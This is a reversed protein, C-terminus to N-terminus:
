EGVPSEKQRSILAWGVVLYFFIVWWDLYGGKPWFSFIGIIFGLALFLLVLSNRGWKTLAFGIMIVIATLVLWMVATWPIGPVFNGWDKPPRIWGGPEGPLPPTLTSDEIDGEEDIYSPQATIFGIWEGYDVVSENGAMARVYYISDAELDTVDYDYVGTTFSGTENWFWTGVETFGWQFGRITAYDGAVQTIEANFTADFDGVPDPPLTNVAWGGTGGPVFQVWSGYADMFENGAYAIVFYSDGQTLNGIAHSYVGTGWADDEHWELAEGTITPTTNWYFGRYDAAGFGLAVIEGQLTATTDGVPDPELTDVDFDEALQKFRLVSGDATWFLGLQDYSQAEPASLNDALAATLGVADAVWEGDVAWTETVANYMSILITDNGPPNHEYWVWLNDSSTDRTIAPATTAICGAHLTVETSFTNTSYSYKTYIIDYTTKKTFVIDVEDGHAVSSWAWTQALQSSIYVIPDWVSGNYRMVGITAGEHKYFVIALKNNTLAHLECYYNSKNIYNAFAVTFVTDNATTSKAHYLYNSLYYDNLWTIHKYGDTDVAISPFCNDAGTAQYVTYVTGWSITGLEDDVTGGQYRLPNHVGTGWVAHVYTGDYCIDWSCIFTLPNSNIKMAALTQESGWATGTLDTSVKYYITPTAGRVYFSFIHNETTFSTTQPPYAWDTGLGTMVSTQAMAVQPVFIGALLALIVALFLVRKVM